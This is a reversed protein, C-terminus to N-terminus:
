TPSARHGLIQRDVLQEALTAKCGIRGLCRSALGQKLGANEVGALLADDLPLAALDLGAQLCAQRQEALGTPAATEALGVRIRDDGALAVAADDTLTARVTTASQQQNIGTPSRVKAAHDDDTAAGINARSTCRSTSPASTTIRSPDVSSLWVTEAVQAPGFITAVFERPM